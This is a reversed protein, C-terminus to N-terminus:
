QASNLTASNKTAAAPSQSMRRLWRKAAASVAASRTENAKPQVETSVLVLVRIKVGSMGSIAIAAANTRARRLVLALAPSENLPCLAAGAAAVALCQSSAQPIDIAMTVPEPPRM